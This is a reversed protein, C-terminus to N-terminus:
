KFICRPCPVPLVNIYHIALFMMDDITGTDLEESTRPFPKEFLEKVIAVLRPHGEGRDNIEGHGLQKVSIPGCKPCSITSQFDIFMRNFPTAELHAVMEEQTEHRTSTREM